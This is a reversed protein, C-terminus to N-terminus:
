ESEIRDPSQVFWDVHGCNACILTTASKNAWDLNLLTLGATNLQASGQEFEELGCHSCTILKDKLTFRGPAFSTAAAQVGRRLATLLKAM